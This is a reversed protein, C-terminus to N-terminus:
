SKRELYAKESNLAAIQEFLANVLLSDGCVQMFFILVPEPLTKERFCNRRTRSVRITNVKDFVRFAERIEEESDTDKMKRAMM